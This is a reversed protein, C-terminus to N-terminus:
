LHLFEKPTQFHTLCKCSWIHDFYQAVCMCKYGKKYFPLSLLFWSQNLRNLSLCLKTYGMDMTQKLVSLVHLFLSFLILRCLNAPGCKSPEVIFINRSSSFFTPYVPPNEMSTHVRLRHLYLSLAPLAREPSQEGQESRILLGASWCLLRQSM